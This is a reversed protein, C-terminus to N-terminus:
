APDAGETQDAEEIADNARAGNQLDFTRLVIGGKDDNRSGPALLVTGFSFCGLSGDARRLRVTSGTM